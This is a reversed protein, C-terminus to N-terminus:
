STSPRNQQAQTFTALRNMAVITAPHKDGLIRQRKEFVERQMAAAEDLRGQHYTMSALNYLATITNPHEDGIIQQWKEFVKRQMAVAEDSKGQSFATGALNNMAAITDPHEDGLVRQRREFVEQQMVAAEDFANQANFTLALNNMAKITDPHEDGLVRQWKELAERQMAAAEDLKGQSSVTFALNNMAKITNPHEDGLIQQWKELVERQMAAAEDLKGQAYMTLALNNMAMVTDLDEDGLIQRSKELVERQMAAAEDLRGQSHITFALNNMATITEPHEDGLIRQRKELVERQMAAAEGFKGQSITTSALNSLAKITDPHEDGLIQRMKESVKRQMAAAEEFKGQSYITFALNNMAKITDPNDDGIIRQGKELVERQMAAAEDLKGQSFITSALNNMAMITHPHEDGLIQQRRELVTRQMAAAEDFRGQSYITYALNNMSTITDLDEDGFSQQWREFIEQQIAAADRWSGLDTMFTGFYDLKYVIEMNKMDMGRVADFNERVHPALRLKTDLTNACGAVAEHLLRLAVLCFREMEEKSKQKLRDQGWAHVLKHMSYSTKSEHRQLLSYKQLIAFCKELTHITVHGETSIVSAWPAETTSTEDSELRFLELFIDENNLFALLTLFRCAEPLQGYVASYSTEWVTMVSHDYEYVLEDPQESLLEQRRRRYEDLYASLNNSVRPTQSVYTGAITIALALCGLEAVILKVEAEAKGQTSTIDACKFFLEVAQPEELQGVNVGEFTSFKGATSSRSTIIVHINPSGPIYRPLDVFNQDKKNLQDAGDFVILIKGLNKTFWILVARRVDETTPQHAQAQSPSNRSLLQYIELFDRDISATQEAQIWFTADYDDRYRQLYSLALQSKGAGGLGYVGVKKTDGKRDTNLERCLQERISDRFSERQVFTKVPMLSTLPYSFVYNEPM